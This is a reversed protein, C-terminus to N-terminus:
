SPNCHLFTTSATQTLIGRTSHFERWRETEVEAEPNRHDLMYEGLDRGQQVARAAIPLRQREFEALGELVDVSRSLSDALVEADTGAKTIGMGVHPRAQAAADGILVVRDYVMRNVLLDYIPTVWPKSICTLIERMPPPLFDRADDKLLDILDERVKPPPISMDFHVGDSDTLMDDLDPEEVPRYWVWNSRRHSPRLDNDPGAIPYVINKNHPPLFFALKDFVATHAERPIDAEEALGRWIVYGAYTPQIEPAFLNRVTSRYGDAAVLLDGTERRGNDFVATVSDPGQEIATLKCGLHYTGNPITTRMIQYLRDWSTVIQEYPLRDIVRGGADLAIREHVVVGLDNLDAGSRVLSHLLEPHTTIGAGRGVLEVHSREFLETDWGAKRLLNAVFLGALSAGIIIARGRTANVAM